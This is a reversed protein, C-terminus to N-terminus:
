LPEHQKPVFINEQRIYIYFFWYVLSQTALYTTFEHIIQHKAIPLNTPIWNENVIKSAYVSKRQTEERMTATATDTSTEVSHMETTEITYLNMAGELLGEYRNREFM